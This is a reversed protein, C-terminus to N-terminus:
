PNRGKWIALVVVAAISSVVGLVFPGLFSHGERREYVVVRGDAEPGATDGSRRMRMQAVARAYDDAYSM